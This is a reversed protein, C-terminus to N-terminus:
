CEALPMAPFKTNGVFGIAMMTVIVRASDDSSKLEDFSEPPEMLVM